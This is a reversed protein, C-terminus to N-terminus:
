VDDKRAVSMHRKGAFGPRRVVTFGAAALGRRVFGAATYTAATGGPATHRGVEAMLDESWLEPNKAPAFGDL